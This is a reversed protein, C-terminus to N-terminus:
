SKDTLVNLLWVRYEKFVLAKYLLNLRSKIFLCKKINRHKNITQVPNSFQSYFDRLYLDIRKTKNYEISDVGNFVECCAALFCNLPHRLKNLKNVAVKTNIKKSLLFVDYANRLAITKYDFGNDNIQNAM